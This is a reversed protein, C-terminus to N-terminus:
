LYARGTIEGHSAARLDHEFLSSVITERLGEIIVPEPRGPKGLWWGSFTINLTDTSRTMPSVFLVDPSPMGNAIQAQMATSLNQAQQIGM